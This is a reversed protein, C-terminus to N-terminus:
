TLAIAFELNYRYKSKTTETAVGYFLSSRYSFLLTCHKTIDLEQSTTANAHDGSFMYRIM